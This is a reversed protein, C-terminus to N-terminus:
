VFSQLGDPVYDDRKPKPPVAPASRVEGALEHWRQAALPITPKSTPEALLLAEHGVILADVADADLKCLEDALDHFLKRYRDAEWAIDPSLTTAWCAALWFLRERIATLRAILDDRQPTNLSESPITQSM